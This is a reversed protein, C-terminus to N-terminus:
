GTAEGLRWATGPLKIMPRGCGTCKSVFHGREWHSTKTDATHAGFLTHFLSM